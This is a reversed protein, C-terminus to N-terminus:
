AMRRRWSDQDTGRYRSKAAGPVIPLERGAAHALLHEGIARGFAVPVANGIQRYQAALSGEVAWDDPFTQLRKYENVSLPRMEDPHVLETAPMTPCTVLTPSPRDWAIRRCFGVRGGTSHFANGM